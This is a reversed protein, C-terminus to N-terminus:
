FDRYLGKSSRLTGILSDFTTFSSNVFAVYPVKLYDWPQGTLETVTKCWDKARADKFPVDKDEWGKTEIIWKCTEGDKLKQEAVFDPYYYRIAGRASLYEISFRTYSEALKAFKSIDKVKDLFAAFQKEFDNYCPTVNFVTKDLEVWDRRWYFGDIEMLKLPEAKMEPKTKSICLKGIATALVSIIENVIRSDCLQRRISEHDINVPKGFFIDGIYKKIHPYITAFQGELRAEKMVRNTVHQLIIHSEPYGVDIEVQKQGMKKEALTEILDVKKEAGEKIALHLPNAPLETVDFSELGKYERTHSPTLIPLEIDYEAKVKMPYVHVGLPPPTKTIGVGVGEVELGKVFEEFKQTGIIEVIQIYDPGIGRMLRLGRGVAQEPLINAKATFPRLGLIVSVNQVDWGERLMMVSVVTRIKNDPLDISRAVERAKELDKKSIEGTKDTHILLSHKGKFENLGQLYDYIDDADKTNEAMIFLVPKKGVKGYANNHEKWRSMAINIWEAYAVSARTYKEPDAKDTQHVILPAKVIRDEIAQALPYDCIIWPFFTGNQDKPTASFDLNLSLGRGYRDKLNEHLGLIVKYWELDTDHVHHAEDNMILLDDHKKVRDSIEEEWSGTEGKPKEGLLREVPNVGNGNEKEEYLQHINTLYLTGDTSSKRSEGRMICTMQWDHKWEPPIMSYKTFMSGNEFDLRLREFVIINPAIVLFTKSLPSNKEFKKHFYSWISALAIVFTKGSGTAMKIAYRTLDPPPLKQQAVQGTEPVVRTLIRENKATEVIKKRETFLDSAYAQPDMYQVALEANDKIGKVEYLYIVTEIAERQCFYFNFEEEDIYHYEEFWWELLRRSIDSIGSPNKYDSRRWADIEKRVQNVLLTKSPRRDPIIVYGGKGDKVLHMTPLEYPSRNPVEPLKQELTIITEKETAKAKKKAM